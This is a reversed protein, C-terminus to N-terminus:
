GLRSCAISEGLIGTLIKRIKGNLEESIFIYPTLILAISVLKMLWCACSIKLTVGMSYRLFILSQPFRKSFQEDPTTEHTFV